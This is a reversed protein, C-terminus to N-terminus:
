IIETDKLINVLEKPPVSPLYRIPTKMLRHSLLQDSFEDGLIYERHIKRELYEEIFELREKLFEVSNSPLTKYKKFIEFFILKEPQDNKNIKLIVDPKNTSSFPAFEATVWKLESFGYERLIECFQKADELSWVYSKAM